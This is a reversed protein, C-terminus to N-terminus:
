KFYLRIEYLFYAGIAGSIAASILSPLFSLASFNLIISVLSSALGVVFALFLLEWGKNDMAKLPKIARATIVAAVIIFLISVISSAVWWGSYSQTMYYGYFSTAAGFFSLAKLLTGILVFVGIVSLIVGVLTIWWVNDAMWKRWTTPLHPIPKLWNGFTNELKHLSEM